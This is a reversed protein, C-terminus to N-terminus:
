EQEAVSGRYFLWVVGVAGAAGNKQIVSNSSGAGGGGGGPYGGPGGSGGQNLAVLAKGGGGGGAGGCKIQSGASVNGGPQGSAGFNGNAGRAGGAALSSSQGPTADNDGVAGNGGSGPTSSSAMLGLPSAIGGASGHAASQALIAGTHPASQNAVRIYSLNGPTGIEIDLHTVGTMDIPLAIYSGHLGGVGNGGPGGNQGGGILIGIFETPMPDPVPWMTTSSTHTVVTYGNIVADKIAEITYTAEAVTGEASARNFWTNYMGKFFDTVNSATHQAQQWFSGFWDKVGQIAANIPTIILGSFIEIIQNVMRNLNNWTTNLWSGWEDMHLFAPINRIAGLIANVAGSVTNFAGEIADPILDKFFQLAELPMKHLQQSLLSLANTPTPVKPSFMARVITENYDQGFKYDGGGIEVAGDADYADFSNDPYNYNVM